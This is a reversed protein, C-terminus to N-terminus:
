GTSYENNGRHYIILRKNQLSNAANTIGVRRVDLMKALFVHTVYFSDSHARDHTMLLWRALRAEVVHFRACTVKLALQCISVYLYRQLTQQLASSRELEVRFSPTPIRLTLGAGQVVAHFPAIYVGKILLIGLMGEDGVLGAELGADSAM